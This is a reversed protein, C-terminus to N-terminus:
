LFFVHHYNYYSISGLGHRDELETVFATMKCDSGKEVYRVGKTQNEAPNNQNM